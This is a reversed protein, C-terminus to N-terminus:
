ESTTEGEDRVDIELVRASEKDVVWAVVIADRWEPDVPVVICSILMEFGLEPDHLHRLYSVLDAESPEPQGGPHTHWEGIWQAASEEHIAEAGARTYELDRLFRKPEHIARSGPGLAHTVLPPGHVSADFGFLAGGTENGDRSRRAERAIVEIVSPAIRVVSLEKCM